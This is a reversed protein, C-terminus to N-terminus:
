WGVLPALAGPTCALSCASGAGGARLQQGVSDDKQAPVERAGEVLVLQLVGGAVEEGVSDLTDLDSTLQADLLALLHPKRGRGPWRGSGARQTRERHVDSEQQAAHAHPAHSSM